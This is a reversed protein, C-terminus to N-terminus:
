IKPQIQSDPLLQDLLEALDIKGRRIALSLEKVRM